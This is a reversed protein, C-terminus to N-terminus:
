GNEIVADAEIEVLWEPNILRSVELFSSGLVLVLGCGAARCAALGRRVLLSGAGRGQRSPAVARVALIDAGAEPRITVSEPAPRM